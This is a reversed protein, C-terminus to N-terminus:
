SDEPMVVQFGTVDSLKKALAVPDNQTEQIIQKIEARKTDDLQRQADEYQKEITALQAEMKQVDLDHKKSEVDRAQQIQDLEQQHKKNLDDLTKTLDSSSRDSKWIEFLVFGAVAVIALWYKKVYAFGTLLFTPM